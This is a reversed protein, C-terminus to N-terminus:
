GLETRQKMEMAHPCESDLHVTYTKLPIDINACAKM